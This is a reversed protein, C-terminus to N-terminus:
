RPCDLILRSACGASSYGRFPGWAHGDLRLTCSGEEAGEYHRIPTDDRGHFEECRGRMMGLHTSRDRFLVAAATLMSRLTPLEIGFGGASPGQLLEPPM